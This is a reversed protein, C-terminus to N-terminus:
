KLLTITGNYEYPIGEKNTIIAKYVFVNDAMIQGKYTGDWEFYIDTTYYILEGWRNFIYFEMDIAGISSVKFKNNLRNNDPTFTNPIYIYFEPKIYVMRRLTDTCGIENIAVLEVEQWGWENYTTGPSYQTSTEGNNFNWEWAVSGDSNNQFFVPLGQMPETTLTNFSAFPRTLNVTTQGDLHYTHCGDEIAVTYTTSREPSVFVNSTTDGSHYWYYTFDGLGGFAQVWIEATDGPCVLQDPSMIFTLVPTEVTFIVDSSIFAGCGDTATVTYTTSEMPHVNLTPGSGILAGNETWEYSFSGEGAQAEAFLTVPTNPCLVSTDNITNIVPPPYVPVNVTASATTPNPICFDTVSVTYTSTATPTITLDQSTTNNPDDWVFDYIGVGGTVIATLTAQEGACHLNIDSVNVNLPSPEFIILNLPIFNNNGCPDPQNFKILITEDGEIIADSMIDFSFSLTTQGPAFTISNPVSTYDLGETATGQKIIPITLANASENPDRDVTVTVTECGEAVKNDPLNLTTSKSVSIPAISTLSNAELFIGSDWVGDGGDAIAIKLHYTEGCEVQAVAELVVTFGDYQVYYSNNNQPSTSGTGNDIYYASNSNNNVNDISVIGGGNPLEAMNVTGGIGPGSIFFAFVDNVNQGVYELYEESAFVYKFRITDSDPIFDFELVAADYTDDNILNSLPPYGAQNNDIGAGGSDNPGEAISVKGTTLLIGTNLGINSNSGDFSGIAQTSGSYQINSVAVGNGVLVNQVLQTPNMATSTILQAHTYIGNFFM